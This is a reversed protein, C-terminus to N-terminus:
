PEPKALLEALQRKLAEVMLSGMKYHESSKGRWADREREANYIKEELKRRQEDIEDQM